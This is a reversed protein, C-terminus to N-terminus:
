YNVEKRTDIEKADEWIEDRLRSIEAEKELIPARQAQEKKQTEIQSRILNAQAQKDKELKEKSTILPSINNYYFKETSDGFDGLAGLADM